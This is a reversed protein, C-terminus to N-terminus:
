VKKPAFFRSILKAIVNLIAVLLILTLAAGWLRSEALGVVSGSRQDLMMGPLSAMEGGFMDFNILKSYGVLVLLPATEGMVRALALMVGTVVGSLATPLVIRSITKWKPVGLAYSAERLDNPVIKLMEESSRVVVPIMLLVLALSVALGSRPLGLTAVWLAYIFLAAVISPVGTLIDVMFTTLKALRSDAGYEVLYIAVFIGIPVSIIACFLGQFLTGVIAHYAGGGAIRNTMMNQSKFWWDASLIAGLGRDLVTYLVWVLPILAILVAASVLVTAIANTTKRRASLPHFAPEKVPRDLTATM